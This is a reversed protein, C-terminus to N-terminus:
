GARAGPLAYVIRAVASGQDNTPSRPPQEDEWIVMGHGELAARLDDLGAFEVLDADSGKHRVPVEVAVAAGERGVRAIEHLVRDLDYAHELSHSAYVVDFRNDPFALDHMDMVLIDSSQSFLDIGVVDGYGRNRFEDLEITNRCGVCLVSADASPPVVESVRGILLRAGIGPDNARKSLTRDLQGHLYARYSSPKGRALRALRAKHDLDSFSSGLRRHLRGLARRASRLPRTAVASV